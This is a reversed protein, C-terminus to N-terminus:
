RDELHSLDNGPLASSNHLSHYTVSSLFGFLSHQLRNIQMLPVWSALRSFSDVNIQIIDLSIGIPQKVEHQHETFM